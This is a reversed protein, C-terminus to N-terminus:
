LGTPWYDWICIRWPQIMWVIEEDPNTLSTRLFYIGSNQDPNMNPKIAWTISTVINQDNSQVPFACIIM